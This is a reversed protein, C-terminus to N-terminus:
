YDINLLRLVGNPRIGRDRTRVGEVGGGLVGHGADEMAAWKQNEGSDAKGLGRSLPLRAIRFRTSTRFVGGLDSM